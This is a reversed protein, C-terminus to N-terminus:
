RGRFFLVYIFYLVVVPLLIPLIYRFLVAFAFGLIRFIVFTIVFFVILAIIGFTWMKWRPVVKGNFVFSARQNDHSYDTDEYGYERYAEQETDDSSEAAVISKALLRPEGLSALVEAEGRESKWISIIM